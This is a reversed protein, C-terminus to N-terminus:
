FPTVGRNAANEDAFRPNAHNPTGIQEIYGL